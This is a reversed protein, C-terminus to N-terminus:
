LEGASYIGMVEVRQSLRNARSTTASKCSTNVTRTGLETNRLFLSTITSNNIYRYM